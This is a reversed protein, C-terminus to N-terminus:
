LESFLEISNFLWIPVYKLVITPTLYPQNSDETKNLMNRSLIICSERSSWDDLIAFFDARIYGKQIDDHSSFHGRKSM